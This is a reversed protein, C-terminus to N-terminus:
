FQFYIFKPTIDPSFAILLCIAVTLYAVKLPRNFPMIGGICDKNKRIQTCIIQGALISLLILPLFFYVGPQDVNPLTVQWFKLEPMHDILLLKKIIGVGIPVNDARFIVETLCVAHFTLFIAFVHFIKNATLTQLTKSKEVVHRWERHLVLLIGHLTGFLIYHTAAGHWLGCLTFTILINRYTMWKGARSGGLPIFLYDKLWTSLSIHWRRWYETISEAMYPLDFNKPVKFGLLQASGRAIDTYGSFDFYVQFAFAYTALWMDFCTFQNPNAYATQVVIALNDAFIVKKVLGFIILELAEDFQSLTLKTKVELQQMFDQYRKIPGAIQTPFFSAFLAFQWPSKVPASGKYVDSLYHIFEFAFFSIGLPLIIQFPIPMLEQNAFGLGWNLSDRVFYAYKFFGLLLLNAAIAVVFLMKRKAQARAIWLGMGYNIATMAAILLGYEPKWSMYFIYSALLLLATRFRFPVMWFLAVVIPLFVLYTFSNFLM